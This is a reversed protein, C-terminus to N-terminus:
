KSMEAQEYVIFLTTWVSFSAYNTILTFLQFAANRRLHLDKQDLSKKVWVTVMFLWRPGILLSNCQMIKQESIEVTQTDVSAKLSCLYLVLELFLHKWRRCRFVVREVVVDGFRWSGRLAGFQTISDRRGPTAPALRSPPDPSSQTPPAPLGRGKSRESLSLALLSPANM